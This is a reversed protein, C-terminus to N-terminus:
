WTAFGTTSRCSLSLEDAGPLLVNEARALLACRDGSRVRIPADALWAMKEEVLLMLSIVH